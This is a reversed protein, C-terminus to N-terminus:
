KASTAWLDPTVPGPQLKVVIEARLEDLGDELEAAGHLEPHQLRCARIEVVRLEDVLNGLVLQLRDGPCSAELRAFPACCAAGSGEEM